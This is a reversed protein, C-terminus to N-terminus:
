WERRSRKWAYRSVLYGITLWLAWSHILADLIEIM